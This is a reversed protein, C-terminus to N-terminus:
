RQCPFLGVSHCRTSSSRLPLTCRSSRFAEYKGDESNRSKGIVQKRDRMAQGKPALLYDCQSRPTVITSLIPLTLVVSTTLRFFTTRCGAPASGLAVAALTARPVNQRLFSRTPLPGESRGAAASRPDPLPREQPVPEHLAAFFENALRAIVAPDPLQRMATSWDLGEAPALSRGRENHPDSTNTTTTSM